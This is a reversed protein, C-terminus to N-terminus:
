GARALDLAQRLTEGCRERGASDNLLRNLGGPHPVAVTIAPQESPKRLGRFPRVTCSGGARRIMVNRPGGHSEGRSKCGWQILVTVPQGHELYVRGVITM